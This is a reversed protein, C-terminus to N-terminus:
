RPRMPFSSGSSKDQTLMLEHNKVAKIDEELAKLQLPLKDINLNEFQSKLAVVKM